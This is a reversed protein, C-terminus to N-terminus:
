VVSKRDRVIVHDFATVGPPRAAIFHGGDSDVVAAEAEIGLERLLAMLLVTKAKCDGYRLRWTEDPTQPVYGGNQMTIALYRIQDEVLQLALGARVKPDASVKKIRDVEARLPSDPALVAAKEFLPAMLAAVEDWSKFDSVSLDRTPQFRPPAYAAFKLPEVDRMDFSVETRGGSKGVKPKDLGKGAVWALDLKEDWLARLRIRDIRGFSPAQIAYELHGKMVPDLHTRTYALQVIDGAQLGEPQLTATLRGDLMARDLNTERRIVTFDQKALVDIKQDGRLIRLHHVTVTDNAPDWALGLTGTSALGMPTRVQVVTEVYQSEGEAGLYLQQDQLLVRVAPGDDGLPMPKVEIPKVWAPPPGKLLKDAAFAPGAAVAIAFAVMAVRFM